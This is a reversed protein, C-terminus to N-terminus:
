CLVFNISPKSGDVTIKTIFQHYADATHVCTAKFVLSQPAYAIASQAHHTLYQITLERCVAEHDKLKLLRISFITVRLRSPPDTPGGGGGGWEVKSM